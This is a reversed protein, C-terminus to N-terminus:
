GATGPLPAYDSVLDLAERYLPILEEVAADVLTLYRDVADISLRCEVNAVAAAIETVGPRPEPWEQYGFTVMSWGDTAVSRAAMCERWESEVLEMEGSSEARIQATNVMNILTTFAAELALFEDVDNFNSLVGERFCGDPALLGGIVSNDVPSRVEIIPADGDDPPSGDFARLWAEQEATAHPFGVPPVFLDAGDVTDDPFTFGYAAAFEVDRTGFLDRADTARRQTDLPAPTYSFGNREMCEVAGLQAAHRVTVSAALLENEIWAVYSGSTAQPDPQLGSSMESLESEFLEAESLEAESLEAESDDDTAACTSLLLVLGVLAM